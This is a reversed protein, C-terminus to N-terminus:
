QHDQSLAPWRSIWAACSITERLLLARQRQRSGRRLPENFNEGTDSFCRDLTTDPVVFLGPKLGPALYDVRQRQLKARDLPVGKAKADARGRATREVIRKRELKATVGLM